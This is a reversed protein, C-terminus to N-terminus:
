VADRVMASNAILTTRTGPGRWPLRENSVYGPMRDAFKPSLYNHIYAIDADAISEGHDILLGNGRLRAVRRTYIRERLRSSLLANFPRAISWRRIGDFEGASGRGFKACCVGVDYGRDHLFKAQSAIMQGAGSRTIISKRSLLITSSM